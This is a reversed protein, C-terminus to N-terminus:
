ANRRNHAKQATCLLKVTEKDLFLTSDALLLGVRDTSGVEVVHPTRLPREDPYSGTADEHRTVDACFDIFPQVSSRTHLSRVVVFLPCAPQLSLFCVVFHSANRAAHKRSYNTPTPVIDSRERQNDPLMRTTSMNSSYQLRVTACYSVPLKTQRRNQNTESLHYSGIPVDYCVPSFRGESCLCIAFWQLQHKHRCIRCILRLMRERREVRRGM